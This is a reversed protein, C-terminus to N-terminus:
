SHGIWVRSLFELRMSNLPITCEAGATGWVRRRTKRAGPSRHFGRFLLSTNSLLPLSLKETVDLFLTEGGARVCAQM